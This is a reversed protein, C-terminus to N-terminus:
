KRAKDLALNLLLVNVRPEGLFGLQRKEIRQKVFERLAAESWGRAKAVRLVQLLAYQPSIHPDLGSASSTIADIPVDKASIGPNEKLMKDLNSKVGDILKKNTPGLNSGQSNNADYGKDGAASPRPHFYQPADFSQGILSSGIVQGRENYLLSGDAQSKLAIRALGTMVLPYLLGTFVTFVVIARISPIIQRLM